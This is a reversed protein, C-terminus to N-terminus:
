FYKEFKFNKTLKKLYELSLVVSALSIVKISFKKLIFEDYIVFLCIKAVLSILISYKKKFLLNIKFLYCKTINFICNKQSIEFNLSNLFNAELTCLDTSIREKILNSLLKLNISQYENLKM